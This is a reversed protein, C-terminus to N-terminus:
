DDEWKVSRELKEIYEKQKLEYGKSVASLKPDIVRVLVVLLIVGVALMVYGPWMLLLSMGTGLMLLIYILPSVVVAFTDERTWVEAEKPTWQKARLAM